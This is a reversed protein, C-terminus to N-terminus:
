GRSTNVPHGCLGTSKQWLAPLVEWSITIILAKKKNKDCAQSLNWYDVNRYKRGPRRSPAGPAHIQKSPTSTDVPGTGKFRLRAM